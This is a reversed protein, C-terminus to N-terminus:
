AASMDVYGDFRSQPETHVDICALLFGRSRWQVHGDVASVGLYTSAPEDGEANTHSVCLWM